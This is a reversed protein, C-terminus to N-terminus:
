QYYLVEYTRKAGRLQAVKSPDLKRWPALEVIANSNGKSHFGHMPVATM